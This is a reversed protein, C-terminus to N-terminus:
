YISDIAESNCEEANIAFNDGVHIVDSLTDGHGHYTFDEKNKTERDIAEKDYM